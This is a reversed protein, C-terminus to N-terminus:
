CAERTTTGKPATGIVGASPLGTIPWRSSWCIKSVPLDSPADVVDQDSTFRLAVTVGRGTETISDVRVDGDRTSRYDRLWQSETQDAARQSVVTSTWTSFDRTNIATFHRDLLDAVPRALPHAAAAGEVQVMGSASRMTSEPAAASPLLLAVPRRIGPQGPGGPRASGLRPGPEAGVGRRIRGVGAGARVRGRRHGADDPEMRRRGFGTVDPRVSAPDARFANPRTFDTRDHGGSGTRDPSRALLGPVPTTPSAAASGGMHDIDPDGYAPGIVTGSPPVTGSAVVGIPTQELSAWGWGAADPYPQTSYAVEKEAPGSPTMGTGAGSETHRSGASGPESLGGRAAAPEVAPGDFGPVGQSSPDLSGGGVASAPSVSWKPPSDPSAPAHSAPPPIPEPAPQQADLPNPPSPPPVVGPRHVPGWLPRDPRGGQTPQDSM